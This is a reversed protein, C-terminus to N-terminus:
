SLARGVARGPPPLEEVLEELPRARPYGQREVM